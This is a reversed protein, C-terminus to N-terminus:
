IALLSKGVVLRDIECHLDELTGNNNISYDAYQAASQIHFLEEEATDQRLFQEYSHPDRGEGRQLMRKYRLEPDSMYVNILIFDKGCIGTLVKVDDLSRIGTIGGIAWGNQRIKEAALKVFCGQGFQHFYRRSIEQLNERTPEKGERAAIERVMDGTSVFPVGYKARLHKLVEDKGSGNQGIVGIIKM